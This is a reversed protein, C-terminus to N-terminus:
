AKCSAGGEVIDVVVLNGNCEVHLVVLVAHTREGYALAIAPPAEFRNKICAIRSSFVVLVTSVLLPSDEFDLGSVQQGSPKCARHKMSITVPVADRPDEVRTRVVVPRVRRRHEVLDDVSVVKCM